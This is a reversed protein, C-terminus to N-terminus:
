KALCCDEPKIMWVLLDETSTELPRSFALTWLHLLLGHVEIWRTTDSTERALTNVDLKWRMFELRGGRAGDQLVRLNILLMINRESEMFMICRNSGLHSWKPTRELHLINRVRVCDEECNLHGGM